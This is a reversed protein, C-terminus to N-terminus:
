HLALERGLTGNAGVVLLPAAPAASRLADRLATSFLTANYGLVIVDFEASGGLAGGFDREDFLRLAWRDGDQAELFPVVDNSPALITETQDRIVAVRVQPLEVKTGSTGIAFSAM